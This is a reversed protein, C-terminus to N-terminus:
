SSAAVLELFPELIIAFEMEHATVEVAPPIVDRREVVHEVGALFSVVLAHRLGIRDHSRGIEIREGPFPDVEFRPDIFDFLGVVHRREAGRLLLAGPYPQLADLIEQRLM